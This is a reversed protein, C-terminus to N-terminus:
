SPSLQCYVAENAVTAIKLQEETTEANVTLIAAHDKRRIEAIQQDKYHEEVYKQLKEFDVDAGIDKFPVTPGEAKWPWEEQGYPVDRGWKICDM